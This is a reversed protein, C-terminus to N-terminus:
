GQDSAGEAEAKARAKAEAAKRVEELEVLFEAVADQWPRLIVGLERESKELNLLSNAPRPAPRNLKDSTMDEVTVDDRGVRELIFRAFDAWTVQGTNTLHYIRAGPAFVKDRRSSLLVKLAQAIDKTYTPRGIQDAVVTLKTTEAIQRLIARPFSRGFVGYLWTIRFIVASKANALIHDEADKKTRGYVSVPNAPDSELYEGKKKGDFVYDTSFFVLPIGLDNCITVINRTAEVNQAVAEEAHDECYDVDTLAACHIVLGPNRSMFVERLKREQLLDCIELPRELHPAPKKDLGIIEFDNELARVLDTGLMGGAGTILIGFAETPM